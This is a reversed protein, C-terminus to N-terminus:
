DFNVPTKEGIPGRGRRRADRWRERMAERVARREGSGAPVDAMPAEREAQEALLCSCSAEGEFICDASLFVSGMERLFFYFRAEAGGGGALGLLEGRALRSDSKIRGRWNM